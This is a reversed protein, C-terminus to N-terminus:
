LSSTFVTNTYNMILKLTTSHDTANRDRSNGCTESNVCSEINPLIFLYILENIKFFTHSFYKM